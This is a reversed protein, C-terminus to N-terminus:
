QEICFPVDLSLDVDLRCLENVCFGSLCELDTTCAERAALKETCTGSNDDGLVCRAASGCEADNTCTEGPEFVALCNRSECFFGDECVAAADDCREGGGVDEPIQCTGEVAGPKIVCRNEEVMNCDFDSSCPDGESAGGDVLRSCDGGLQFVESYEAATITADSFATKAADICDEAYSSSRYGPPILELCYQLEWERCADVDFDCAEIVNANCVARAWETCFGTETRLRGSGADPGPQDSSCGAAFAFGLALLFSFCQKM